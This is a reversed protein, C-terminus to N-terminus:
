EVKFSKFVVVIKLVFNSLPLIKHSWNDLLRNEDAFTELTLQKLCFNGQVPM